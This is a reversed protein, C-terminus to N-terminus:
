RHPLRGSVKDEIEVTREYLDFRKGLERADGEPMVGFSALSQAFHLADCFERGGPLHGHCFSDRKTDLKRAGMSLM